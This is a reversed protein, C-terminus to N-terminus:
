LQFYIKKTYLITNTKEFEKNSSIKNKHFIDLFELM